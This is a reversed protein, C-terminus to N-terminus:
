SSAKEEMWSDLRKQDWFVYGWLQREKREYGVLGRDSTRWWASIRSGRESTTDHTHRNHAGCIRNLSPCEGNLAKSLFYKRRWPEHYLIEAQAEPTPARALRLFFRLGLSIWYEIKEDGYEGAWSSHNSASTQELERMWVPPTEQLRRLEKGCGDSSWMLKTYYNNLHERLCAVGEADAVDINPLYRLSTGYQPGSLSVHDEFNEAPSYLTRSTFLSCYIEFHYLARVVRQIEHRSPPGQNRSIAKTLPNKALQTLYISAVSVILWHLRTISIVTDLDKGELWDGDKATELQDYYHIFFGNFMRTLFEAGSTHLDSIISCQELACALFLCEPGLENLLVQSLIFQRQGLYSTHYTTSSRILARLTTCDPLNQLILSQLEKPLNELRSTSPRDEISM